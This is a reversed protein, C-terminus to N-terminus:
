RILYYCSEREMLNCPMELCLKERHGKKIRDLLLMVAMHAMDKQPIHITTLGAGEAERIDDISIVSIPNKRNRKQKKLEDLAGLALDDNACLVATATNKQLLNEMARRGAERTQTVDYILPYDIPIKNKILCESYGVYRNEYSCDGIYAIKRHGLSLLYEIALEAARDGRCIVEDMPLAAPNRWIGILNETREQLETLLKKPCRGLIVYGDGVPIKKDVSLKKGNEGAYIISGIRCGAQIFESQLHRCLEEFFSDKSHRGSRAMIVSIQINKDLIEGSKLGRAYLNPQYGIEGAAQWIKEKVQESACSENKHNLVRSVTSVSVGTMEAIKKLSM